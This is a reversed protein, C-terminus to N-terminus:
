KIQFYHFKRINKEKSVLVIVLPKLSSDFGFGDASMHEIKLFLGFFLRAGSQGIASLLSMLSECAGPFKM